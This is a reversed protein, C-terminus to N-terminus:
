RVSQRTLIKYSIMGVSAAFLAETFFRPNNGTGCSAALSMSSTRALLNAETLWTVGCAALIRRPGPAPEEVQGVIEILIEVSGIGGVPAKRVASVYIAFDQGHL